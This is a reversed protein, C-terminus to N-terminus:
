DREREERTNDKKEKEREFKIRQADFSRAEATCAKRASQATYLAEPCQFFKKHNVQGHDQWRSGAGGQQQNSSSDSSSRIPSLDRLNDYCKTFDGLQTHFTNLLLEVEHDSGLHRTVKDSIDM